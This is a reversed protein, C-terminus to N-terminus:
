KLFGDEKLPNVEGRELAESYETDTLKKPKPKEEGADIEGGVTKRAELAEKREQLAEERAVVRERREVIEDARDLTEITKKVGNDKPPTTETETESVEKTEEKTKEEEDM